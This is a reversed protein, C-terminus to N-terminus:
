RAQKVLSSVGPLGFRQVPPLGGAAGLTPASPARFVVSNPSDAYAAGSAIAAAGPAFMQEFSVERASVRGSGEGAGATSSYMSPESSRQVAPLGPSAFQPGAPDTAASSIETPLARAQVGAGGLESSGLLPAAAEGHNPGSPARVDAQSTHRIGVDSAARQVAAPLFLEREGASSGGPEAVDSSIASDAPPRRQRDAPTGAVPDATSSQPMSDALRQVPRLPESSTRIPAGLGVPRAPRGPPEADVMSPGAARHGGGEGQDFVRMVATLGVIGPQPPDAPEVTADQRASGAGVLAAPTSTPGGPASPPGGPLAPLPPLLSRLRQVAPAPVAAPLNAPGTPARQVTPRAPPPVSSLPAGLGLSRTAPGASRQVSSITGGPNPTTSTAAEETSSSSGASRSHLVPNEHNARVSSDSGVALAGDPSSEIDTATEATSDAAGLLPAQATATSPVGESPESTSEAALPLLTSHGQAGTPGIAARQVPEFPGDDAAARSVTPSGPDSVKPTATPSATSTAVVPLPHHVGPDPASTLEYQYGPAATPLSRLEDPPSLTPTQVFGNDVVRQVAPAASQVAASLWTKPARIRQVAPSASPSPAVLLEPGGLTAAPTVPSALGDVQGSPGAPDVSHGLPALFSPNRATALSSTFSDLPAVPTTATLM